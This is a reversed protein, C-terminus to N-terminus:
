SFSLLISARQKDYFMKHKLNSNVTSGSKSNADKLMLIKRIPRKLDMLIICFLICRDLFPLYKM